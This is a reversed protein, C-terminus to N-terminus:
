EHLYRQIISELKGSEIAEILGLNIQELIMEDDQTPFAYLQKDLGIDLVSDIFAQVM